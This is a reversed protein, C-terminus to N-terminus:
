GCPVTVRGRKYKLCRKFVPVGVNMGITIGDLLDVWVVDQLVTLENKPVDILEAEALMIQLLYDDNVDLRKSSMELIM